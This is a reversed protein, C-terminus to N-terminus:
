NEYNKLRKEQKNTLNMKEKYKITLKVLKRRREPNLDKYKVNSLAVDGLVKRVESAKDNTCMKAIEELEDDHVLLLEYSIKRITPYNSKTGALLLKKFGAKNQEYNEGIFDFFGLLIQQKEHSCGGKHYKTFFDMPSISSLSLYAKTVYRLSISERWIYSKLLGFRIEKDLSAFYEKFFEEDHNIICLLLRKKDNESINKTEIFLNTLEKILEVKPVKKIKILSPLMFFYALKIKQPLKSDIVFRFNEIIDSTNSYGDERFLYLVHKETFCKNKILYNCLTQCALDSSLFYSQGSLELINSSDKELLSKVLLLKEDDQLIKSKSIELSIAAKMEGSDILIDMMDYESMMDFDSYYYKIKEFYNTVAERTFDLIRRKNEASFDFNAPLVEDRLYNVITTQSFM